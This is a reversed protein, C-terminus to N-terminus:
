KSRNTMKIHTSHLGMQALFRGEDFLAPRKCPPMDDYKSSSNMSPGMVGSSSMHNRSADVRSVEEIRKTVEEIARTAAEMAQADHDALSRLHNSHSSSVYPRDDVSFFLLCMMDDINSAYNRSAFFINAIQQMSIYPILPQVCFQRKTGIVKSYCSTFNEKNWSIEYITNKM